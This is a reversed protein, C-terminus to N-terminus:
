THFKWEQSRHHSHHNKMVNSRIWCHDRSWVTKILQTKFSTLEPKKSHNPWKTCEQRHNKWSVPARKLMNSNDWSNAKQKQHHLLKILCRLERQHWQLINQLIRFSSKKGQDGLLRIQHLMFLKNSLKCLIRRNKLYTIMVPMECTVAAEWKGQNIRVWPLDVLTLTNNHEAQLCWLIM